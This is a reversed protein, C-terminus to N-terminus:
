KRIVKGMSQILKSQFLVLLVQMDHAIHSTMMQGYHHMWDGWVQVSISQM